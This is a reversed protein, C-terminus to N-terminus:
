KYTAGCHSCKGNFVTLRGCNSCRQGPGGKGGNPPVKMEFGCNTCKRGTGTQFFTKKRCKPCVQGAM